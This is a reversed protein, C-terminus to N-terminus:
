VDYAREVMDSVAGFPDASMATARKLNKTAFVDARKSTRSGIAASFVNGTQNRQERCYLRSCQTCGRCVLEDESETRCRGATQATLDPDKERFLWKFDTLWSPQLTSVGRGARATQQRERTAIPDTSVSSAGSWRYGTPRPGPVTPTPSLVSTSSRHLTNPCPSPREQQQSPGAETEADSSSGTTKKKKKSLLKM